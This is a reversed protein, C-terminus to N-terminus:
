EHDTASGELKKGDHPNEGPASDDNSTRYSENEGKRSDHARKKREDEAVTAADSTPEGERQYWVTQQPFPIEIGELDFRKKLRYRLERAVKWQELPATTVVLRITVASDGLDQVGWVEPEAIILKQWAEELAMGQAVEEIVDEAYDLNTGYGVGVDLVARAWGQSQNGVQTIDGNRVYWVVGHLDRLRTVRLGVAEVTGSIDNVDIIDGVGYQDEVLMFLGSLFDKVVSQAGFGLAVGLVSAGALFPALNVGFIILVLMYIMTSYIIFSAISRLVQGITHARQKRRFGRSPDEETLARASSTVVRGFGSKGEAINNTIRRIVRRAFWALLLSIVIVAISRLVVENIGSIWRSVEENGTVGRLWGCFTDDFRDCPGQDKPGESGNTGAAFAGLGKFPDINDGSM